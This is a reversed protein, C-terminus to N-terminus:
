KKTTSKLRVDLEQFRPIFERLYNAFARFSIVDDLTKPDPWDVLAQAKGPQVTRLGQGVVFGLLPIREWAFKSKDLKFQIKKEAAAKFFIELQVLHREFVEDDSEGCDDVFVSVFESGDTDRVKGLVSDALGQFIGPGQKPGFFLVKPLLLGRRTVLALIKSTNEDIGLQTFGWVCDFSSHVVGNQARRLCAEANASPWATDM